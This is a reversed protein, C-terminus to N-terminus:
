LFSHGGCINFKFVYFGTANKEGQKTMHMQRGMYGIREQIM